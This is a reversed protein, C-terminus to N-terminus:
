VGLNMGLELFLGSRLGCIGEYPVIQQSENQSADAPRGRTNTSRCSACASVTRETYVVQRKLLSKPMFLLVTIFEASNVLSCFSYRRPKKAPTESRPRGGKTPCVASPSIVFSGADPKGLSTTSDSGIHNLVGTESRELSSRQFNSCSGKVM